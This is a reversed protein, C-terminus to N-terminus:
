AKLFKRAEKVSSFGSSLNKNKAIDKLAQKIERNSTVNFQESGVLGLNLDGNVFAKTALKLVSAFAIGERQAKAMAKNKLAKDIKFIVQTTM